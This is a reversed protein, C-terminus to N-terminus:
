QDTHEKQKGSNTYADAEYFYTFTLHIKIEKDRHLLFDIDGYKLIMTEEIIKDVLNM